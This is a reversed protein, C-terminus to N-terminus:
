SDKAMQLWQNRRALLALEANWSKTIAMEINSTPFGHFILSEVGNLRV